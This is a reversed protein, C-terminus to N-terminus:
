EERGARVHGSHTAQLERRGPSLRAGNQDLALFAFHIGAKAPVVSTLAKAPDVSNSARRSFVVNM